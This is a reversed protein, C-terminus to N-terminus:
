SKKPDKFSVAEDTAAKTDSSKSEKINLFGFVTYFDYITYRSFKAEQFPPAWIKITLEDLILDGLAIKRFQGSAYKNVASTRGIVITIPRFSYIRISENAM